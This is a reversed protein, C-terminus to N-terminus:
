PRKWVGNSDVYFGSIWEDVAKHGDPYLYYIQGDIEQWGTAMAGNEFLYYSQNGLQIWGVAMEGSDLLFYWTNGDLLWGTQMAGQDNLYYYHGNRQQWGTQMAGLSDFLYWSNGILAWSDRLYTGDPYRFYWRGNSEIWGVETTEPATTSTSSGANNRSSGDSVHEKDLELDGSYIWESPDAYKDTEDDKPVARVRFTYTGASTMYPYFDFSTGTIGNERHIVRNGLCLYVDYAANDVKDWRAVGLKSSSLRTSDWRVDEPDSLTGEAPRTKVTIQLRDKDQRRVRVLTGGKIDVSSSSYSSRFEYDNLAELVIQITYTKGIQAEDVEDTWEASRIDYRNNSPITVEADENDTYGRDLNPLAEGDELDINLAIRVSNVYSAAYAPFAGFVGASLIGAASLLVAKQQIRKIFYVRKMRKEGM